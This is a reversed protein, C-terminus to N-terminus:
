DRRCSIHSCKSFRKTLNVITDKVMCGCDYVCRIVLGPLCIATTLFSGSGSYINKISEFIINIKRLCFSYKLLIRNESNVGFQYHKDNHLRYFWLPVSGAFVVGGSSLIYFIPPYATNALTKSNIGWWTPLLMNNIMNTKFLGYIFRDDYHWIFKYLRRIISGSYDIKRVDEVFQGHENIFNYPCFAAVNNKDTRIADYLTKIFDKDWIDDVAAWMFYDACAKQCVFNFNFKGGRNETQRIYKIRKDKNAYEKCILATSDTSANDSIILEFDTFTQALLSDLAKKIFKEGNYVPM